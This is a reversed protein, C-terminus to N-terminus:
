RGPERHAPAPILEATVLRRARPYLAYVAAREQHLPARVRRGPSPAPPPDAQPSFRHSM